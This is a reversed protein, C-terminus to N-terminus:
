KDKKVLPQKVRKENMENELGAFLNKAKRKELVSIKMGLEHIKGSYIDKKDKPASSLQQKVREMEAKLPVIEKNLEDIKSTALSYAYTCLTNGFTIQKFDTETFKGNLSWGYSRGYVCNAGIQKLTVFAKDTKGAEKKLDKYSLNWGKVPHKIQKEDIWDSNSSIFEDIIGKCERAGFTVQKVDTERYKGNVAVGASFDIVCNKGEQNFSVIMKDDKNNESPKLTNKVRKEMLYKAYNQFDFSICPFDVFLERSDTESYKGAEAYGYSQKFRCGKGEPMYSLVTKDTRFVGDDVISNTDSKAERVSAVSQGSNGTNGTEWVIQSKSSCGSLSLLALVVYTKKM